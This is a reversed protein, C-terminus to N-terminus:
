SVDDVIFQLVIAVTGTQKASITLNAFAKIANRRKQLGIVTTDAGKPRGRRKVALPFSLQGAVLLCCASKYSQLTGWKDQLTDSSDTGKYYYYCYYNGNFLQSTITM